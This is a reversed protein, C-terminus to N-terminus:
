RQAPDPRNPRGLALVGERVDRLRARTEDGHRRVWVVGQAIVTLAQMAAVVLPAPEVAVGRARAELAAAGALLGVLPRGLASAPLTRRDALM